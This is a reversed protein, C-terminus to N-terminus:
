IQFLVTDMLLIVRFHTKKLLGALRCDKYAISSISFYISGFILNHIINLKLYTRVFWDQLHWCIEQLLNINERFDVIRYINMWLKSYMERWSVKELRNIIFCFLDETEPQFETQISRILIKSQALEILRKWCPANGYSEVLEGTIQLM